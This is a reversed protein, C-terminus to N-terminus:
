GCVLGDERDNQFLIWANIGRNFRSEYTEARGKRIRAEEYANDLSLSGALVSDALDSAHRLVTRAQSLRNELTKPNDGLDWYHSKGKGYGLGIVKAVIMARQGKTLHRRYVSECLIRASLDEGDSLLTYGPTIGARRCAERRNRGDVLVPQGDLEAILEAKHAAM